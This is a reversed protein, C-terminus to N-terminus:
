AGRPVDAADPSPWLGVALVLVFTRAGGDPMERLQGRTTASYAATVREDHEEASLRGVAYAERLGEAISNRDQDSARPWRDAGM